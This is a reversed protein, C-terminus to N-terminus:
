RGLRHERQHDPNEGHHIGPRLRKGGFVVRRSLSGNVLVPGQYATVLKQSAAGTNQATSLVGPAPEAGVRARSARLALM